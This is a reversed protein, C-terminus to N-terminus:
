TTSASAMLSKKVKNLECLAESVYTNQPEVKKIYSGIGILEDVELLEFLRENGLNDYGNKILYYSDKRFKRRMKKPVRIADSQVVLGTVVKRQNDKVLRSKDDNISFGHDKLYSFIDDIVDKTINDGSFFLDDAYRTYTLGNSQSIDYFVCDLDYFIINSLAPSTPAGQPLHDYYTCIKALKNSLDETYGCDIFVKEVQSISIHGFFNVLDLKLMQKCGIHMKANSIHSKGQLYSFVNNHVPLASLINDNIWRQIYKLKPYPSEIHRFGDHRKALNFLRYFRENLTCIRSLLSLEVGLLKSLHELEFIVPLSKLELTQAYEALVKAQSKSLDNEIFFKFWRSQEMM